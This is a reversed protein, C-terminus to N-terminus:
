LLADFFKKMEELSKRRWYNYEDLNLEGKEYQENAAKISAMYRKFHKKLEPKEKLAPHSIIRKMMEKATKSEVGARSRPM